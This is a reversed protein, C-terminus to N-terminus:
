ICTAPMRQVVGLVHQEKRDPVEIEIYQYAIRDGGDPGNPNGQPIRVPSSSVIISRDADLSCLLRSSQGGHEDNAM